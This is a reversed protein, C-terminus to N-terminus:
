WKWEGAAAEYYVWMRASRLQVYTLALIILFFVWALASGYGMEIFDFAYNYLNLVYFLTSYAPGGVVRTQAGGATVVYALTFQQLAGIVGLILAFFITPTLLPLTVRCFKHWANAGDMEAAEQLELPVGQLGALFILMNGGGVASWLAIIILAPKSWTTSNLWGLPPIGVFSLLYNMVGMTPSFFFIWILGTAVVPTISPLFYVARFFTRGRFPQNLLLALCLSGAISLPVFIVAYYATNGLSKWFLRDTVLRTYNSLGIFRPPQIMTYETLSLYVSALMPGLTFFVFGLVWPSIYLYGQLAEWRAM